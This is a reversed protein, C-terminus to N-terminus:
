YIFVERTVLIVRKATEGDNATENDSITAYQSMGAFPYFINVQERSCITGMFDM